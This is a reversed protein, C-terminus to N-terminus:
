RIGGPAKDGRQRALHVAVIAFGGIDKDHCLLLAHRIVFIRQTAKPLTGVLDIQTLGADSIEAGQRDALQVTGRDIIKRQNM